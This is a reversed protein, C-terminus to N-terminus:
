VGAKAAAVREARAEMVERLGDEGMPDFSVLEPLSKIGSILTIFGVRSNEIYTRGIAQAREMYEERLRNPDMFYRVYALIDNYLQRYTADFRGLAQEEHEPNDLAADIARSALWSASTGLWVGSSFLPDIFAAADGVAVWGPGHFSHSIHSWDRATRLDGIQEADVMTRAIRSSALGEAFVDQQTRGQQTAETLQSAPLVYGLSIETESLPIGWMWGGGDIAEVLIDDPNELAKYDTFYGWVAVNRLDEQWTVQTLKRTVTRNQGSADVVFEANVQHKTGNHAYEVGTVRGSANHLTQTVQAQEVVEVGLTRARNLLLEDFEDRRVHWSHDYLGGTASFDTRWPQPDKGWVLNIGTKRQFRAELEEVVGLEEMVPIMGTVMSEGIHYRPFSERELVLVRRGRQALLGAITSGAPGGGVVVVDYPAHSM